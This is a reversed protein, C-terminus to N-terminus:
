EMGGQKFGFQSFLKNKEIGSNLQISIQDDPLFTVKLEPTVYNMREIIWKDYDSLTQGVEAELSHWSFITYGLSGLSLDIIANLLKKIKSEQNIGNPELIDNLLPIRIEGKEDLRLERLLNNKYEFFADNLIINQEELFPSWNKLINCIKKRSRNLEEIEEQAIIFTSNAPVNFNNINQQDQVNNREKALQLSKPIHLVICKGKHCFEVDEIFRRFGKVLYINKEQTIRKYLYEQLSRKWCDETEDAIRLIASLFPIRLPGYPTLSAMYYDNINITENTLMKEIPDDVGHFYAIIACFLAIREDPLGLEAWCEEIIEKSYLYHEKDKILKGIDHLFISCLLLFIEGASFDKKMADPILADVNREVNILHTYGKHSGEDFSLVGVWEELGKNKIMNLRSALETEKEKLIDCFKLKTEYNKFM